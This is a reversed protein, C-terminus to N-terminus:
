KVLIREQYIRDGTTVKIIYIGTSKNILASIEEKHYTFAPVDVQFATEIQGLTNRIEVHFNQEKESYFSINFVGISPNPFVKYPKNEEFSVQRNAELYLYIKAFDPIGHGMTPSPNEYRSSFMEITKILKINNVEPFAQWLSTVMGAMVPSSFSTGYSVTVGGIASQVTTASGKAMVNPKTRWDATPGVSSFASYNGQYDVSGVTLISDADAPASIYKWPDNGENGASACVLIGKRACMVAARSVVTTRGDLDEYKHNVTEDDFTSYGLSTNIVDVGLSDAYEAAVAWNFEEIINESMGDESRLLYFSAKPATGVLAGPINGAIASLVQMGHTSTGFSVPKNKGKVFDRTGLIQNNYWLSDFGDLENVKYFGADIVAIQMGKGNFGKAHLVQGNSLTIQNESNGYDYHNYTNEVSNRNLIVQRNRQLKPVNQKVSRKKIEFDGIFSINRITDLLLTDTTKVIAGNFWKSVNLVELGLTKLSDLYKKTVPLDTQSYKINYRKRREIARQSLFEHPNDLSYENNAKDAFQIWYKGPAIRFQANSM